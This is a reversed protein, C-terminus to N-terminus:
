TAVQPFTMTLISCNDKTDENIVVDRGINRFLDIIGADLQLLPQITSRYSVSVQRGDTKCRLEITGSPVRLNGFNVVTLALIQRMFENSLVSIVATEEARIQLEFQISRPLLTSLLKGTEILLDSVRVLKEEMEFPHLLNGVQVLLGRASEASEHILKLNEELESDSVGACLHYRSLSAVGSVSNTLDHVVRTLVFELCISPFSGLQVAQNKPQKSEMLFSSSVVKKSFGEVIKPLM